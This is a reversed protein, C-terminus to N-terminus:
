DTLLMKGATHAEIWEWDLEIGLGDGTPAEVMGDADPRVPNVVGYEWPEVPYPLEFYSVNDHALMVHLTAFQHLTVPPRTPKSLM